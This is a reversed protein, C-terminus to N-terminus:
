SMPVDADLAVPLTLLRRGADDMFRLAPYEARDLHISTPLFLRLDRGPAPLEVAGSQSPLLTRGQSDKLILTRDAQAGSTAALEQHQELDVLTIATVRDLKPATPLRLYLVTPAVTSEKPQFACDRLELDTREKRVLLRTTGVRALARFHDQVYTLFKTKPSDPGWPNPTDIFMMRMRDRHADLLAEDAARDMGDWQNGIMVQSAPRQDL